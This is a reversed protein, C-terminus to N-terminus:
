YGPEPNVEELPFDEFDWGDTGEPFWYVQTHGYELARKAANWSMWCEDLCFFLIPKDKDGGTVKKLGARFYDHTVDAVQGYGVNPLWLTGPISARPKERWITGEPLNDPKPARPLVDIFATDGALWIAHAEETSVVTGGALTEPVPARYHDNRYDEPEIPTEAFATVPLLCALALARIM